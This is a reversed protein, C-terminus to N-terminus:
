RSKTLKIKVIGCDESTNPLTIPDWRRNRASQTVWQQLDKHVNEDVVIAAARFRMNWDGGEKGIRALVEWSNGIMEVEGGGQPWWDRTGAIGVLLWLHSGPPLKAEGEVLVNDKVSSGDQPSTIQICDASAINGAVLITSLFLGFISGKCANYSKIVM